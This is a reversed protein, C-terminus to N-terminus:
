AVAASWLFACDPAMIVEAVSEGVRVRTGGRLGIDPDNDITGAVRNGFEATLGYTIGGTPGTPVPASYFALASKGWVRAMSATQGRKASNYFGSGVIVEDLELLEALAQRAVLPAAGVSANGGSPNCAATVKPHQRLKTWVAQGVVLKNPRMILGDFATLMASVPDSTVDSWQGSGSLTAKNASAYNSANFVAAAVRIERDLAILETLLETSRAIPDPNFGGSVLPVSQAALIDAQPIADDLGYDQVSATQETATWDVENPQSKRGVRTNPVTFADAQTFKTWKFSASLVPYRPLIQDAIFAQNRYALAIATLQTQVVFPAAYAM